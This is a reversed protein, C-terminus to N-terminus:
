QRGGALRIRPDIVGYLLDVILSILLFEATVFLAIAQVVAYDKGQVSSVLLTGLGNLGFAYEIVIAGSLLYGIQAGVITVVPIMSGRLAHKTIVRGSSFGRVRAGFVHDSELEGIVASRTIRSVLALSSLALAIAPLTLHDLRTILSGADGGGEAPFWALDVGFVVALVVGTVYSPVATFSLSGLTAFLDFPGNRVIGSLIGTAVGLVVMIVVAYATLLLTLSIRPSLVSGVSAHAAISQGFNGHLLHSLWIGYQVPLSRNLGYRSDFYRITAANPPHGGNLLTAPSGPGLHLLFFVIVTSTLLVILTTAFRRALYTLV